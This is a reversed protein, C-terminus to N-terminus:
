PHIQKRFTHARVVKKIYSRPLICWNLCLSQLMVWSSTAPWRLIHQLALRALRRAADKAVEKHEAVGLKIRISYAQCLRKILNAVARLETETELLEERRARAFATILAEPIEEGLLNSFIRQKVVRGTKRQQRYRQTTLMREHVRRLCLFEPLNALQTKVSLRAWLDYDQGYLIEPRYAMGGEVLSRRMMVSPHALPNSFLMTWRVLTPSTPPQWISTPQGREDINAVWTGLVGVEPHEELFSVQLALRGPLSIDDADQRALYRGCTAQIGRNLSRTLGLRRTSRMLRIRKDQEAYEKLIEPTSDTSCDDVIIFEFDSFTQDLISEVAERLYREGNYVSMLVSVMPNLIRCRRQGLRVM